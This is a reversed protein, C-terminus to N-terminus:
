RTFSVTRTSTNAKLSADVSTIVAAHTGSSLTRSSLTYSCSTVNTCTKVLQGDLTIAISAIGSQDSASASITTNGNGKIRANVRPSTITITPPTADDIPPTIATVVTSASANQSHQPVAADNVGVTVSYTNVATSQPIQVTFRSQGTAGPLLALTQPSLTQTWGSPLTPALAFTSSACSSSDDNTVNVTYVISGGSAVSQTAPAISVRPTSRTCAQPPTSTSVTASADVRATHISALSDHISVSFPFTGSGVTPSLAINITAQQTAGPPIVLSPASLTYSGGAVSFAPYFKFTSSLCSSPDTNTVALTYALTSGPTGNQTTPSIVFKPATSTCSATTTSGTVLTAGGGRYASYLTAHERVWRAGDAAGVSGQPIGVPYGSYTKLPTSYYGITPCSIGNAGCLDQYSMIDRFKGELSVYGFHYFSSDTPSMVYRDHNLGFNHGLEHAFTYGGSCLVDVMSFAYKELGTTWATGCSSPTDAYITVFDAALTDRLQRLSPFNHTTAFTIADLPYQVGSQTEDYSADVPVTGVISLRLPIDSNVFGTNARAVDLAIRDAILGSFYASARSTYTALLKIEYVPADANAVGPVEMDTLTATMVTAEAGPPTAHGHLPLADANIERVRHLSSKGTPEIFFTRTGVDVAGTVNNNNVVLIGSVNGEGEASWVVGGNYAKEVNKRKLTIKADNFLEITVAGGLRESLKARDDANSKDRPLIQDYIAQTNIDIFRLRKNSKHSKIKTELTSSSVDKTEKTLGPPIKPLPARKETAKITAAAYTESSEEPMRTAIFSGLALAFMFVVGLYSLTRARESLVANFKM